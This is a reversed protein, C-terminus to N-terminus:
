PDQMEKELIENPITQNRLFRVCFGGEEAYYYSQRYKCYRIPAGMTKMLDIFEYLSRESLGIRGALERPSGTGRIRILHDIANLRDFYLRTM